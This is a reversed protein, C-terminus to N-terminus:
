VNTLYHYPCFNVLSPCVFGSLYPCFELFVPVFIGLSISLFERAQPPIKTGIKQSNNDRKPNYLWELPISGTYIWYKRHVTM